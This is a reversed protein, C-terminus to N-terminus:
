GGTVVIISFVSKWSLPKTITEKGLKKALTKAEKNYKPAFYVTSAPYDSNDAMGVSEVKYGMSAVRKAMQRASDIKGDGSLVKIRISKLGSQKKGAPSEEIAVEKSKAFQAKMRDLENVMEAQKADQKAIEESKKQLLDDKVAAQKKLDNNEAQLKENQAAIEKNKQDLEAVAKSLTSAEEEKKVYSDQTVLCGALATVFVLLAFLCLSRRLM